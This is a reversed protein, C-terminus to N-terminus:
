QLITSPLPSDDQLMASLGLDNSLQMINKANEPKEVKVEKSSPTITLSFSGNGPTKGEAKASGNIKITSV